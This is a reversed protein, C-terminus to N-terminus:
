YCVNPLCSSLNLIFMTFIKVGSCPNLPFPSAPSIILLSNSSFVPKGIIEIYPFFLFGETFCSSPISMITKSM